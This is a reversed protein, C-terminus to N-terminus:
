LLFNNNNKWWFIIIVCQIQFSVGQQSSVVISKVAAADGM